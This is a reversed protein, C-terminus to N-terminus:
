LEGNVGKKDLYDPFNYCFIKIYLIKINFQKINNNDITIYKNNNNIINKKM